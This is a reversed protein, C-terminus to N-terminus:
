VVFKACRQHRSALTLMLENLAIHIILFLVILETSIFNLVSSRDRVKAIDARRTFCIRGCKTLEVFNVCVNFWDVAAFQFRIGPAATFRKTDDKVCDCCINKLPWAM